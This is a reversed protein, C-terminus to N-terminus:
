ECGSALGGVQRCATLVDSGDKETEGGGGAVGFPGGAGGSPIMQQGAGGSRSFENVGHDAGSEAEVSGGNPIMQQDENPEPGPETTRFDASEGDTVTSWGSPTQLHPDGPGLGVLVPRADGKCDVVAVRRGQMDPFSKM